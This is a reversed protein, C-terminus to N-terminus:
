MYIHYMSQLTETLAEIHINNIAERTIVKYYFETRQHMTKNIQQIIDHAQSSAEIFIPVSLHSSVQKNSFIISEQLDSQLLEIWNM